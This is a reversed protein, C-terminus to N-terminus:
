FQGTTVFVVYKGVKLRQFDLINQGIGDVLFDIKLVFGRRLFNQVEKVVPFIEEKVKLHRIKFFELPFAFDVAVKDFDAFYLFHQRLLFKATEGVATPVVAHVAAVHVAVILFVRREVDDVVVYFLAHLHHNRGGVVRIHQEAGKLHLFPRVDSPQHYLRIEYLVFIHKPSHAKLVTKGTVPSEEIM